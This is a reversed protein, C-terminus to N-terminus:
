ALFGLKRHIEMTPRFDSPTCPRFNSRVEDLGLQKILHTGVSSRCSALSSEQHQILMYGINSHCCMLNECTKAWCMTIKTVNVSSMHVQSARRSEYRSCSNYSSGRDGKSSSIRSGICSSSSCSYCDRRMRM